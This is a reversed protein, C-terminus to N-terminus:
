KDSSGFPSLVVLQVRKLDISFLSELPNLSTPLFMSYHYLSRNEFILYNYQYNTLWLVAQYYPRSDDVESM